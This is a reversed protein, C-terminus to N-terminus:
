RDGADVIVDHLVRLRRHTEPVDRGLRRTIQDLVPRFVDGAEAHVRRGAATL